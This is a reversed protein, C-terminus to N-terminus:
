RFEFHLWKPDYGWLLESIKLPKIALFKGLNDDLCVFLFEWLMGIGEVVHVGEVATVAKINQPLIGRALGGCELFGSSVFFSGFL